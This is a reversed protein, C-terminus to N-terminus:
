EKSRKGQLDDINGTKLSKLYEALFEEDSCTDFRFIEMGEQIMKQADTDVNSAASPPTEQVTPGQKVRGDSLTTAALILAFGVLLTYRVIHSIMSSREGSQGPLVLEIALHNAALEGVLPNKL